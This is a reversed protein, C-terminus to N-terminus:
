LVHAGEGGHATEGSTDANLSFTTRCINKYDCSLCNTFRIEKSSFDLGGLAQDFRGLYTELADLTPQYAERSLGRKGRPSGVVATIDHNNISMFFAGGVTVGTKEEYLKIYMPIQFDTLPSDATEISARQTPTLGTKYDIICPEDDPSVSVRDLKGNLLVGEQILELALELGGVSFGAFYKVETKLLLLLRKAIAASQSVLLPVALPGQFASYQHAAEDTHQRIWSGYDQLRKPNFYGGEVRIHTFLKRLIEHYLNGLSTDDLLKAELSFVALGCIKRYFWLAPCKFFNNMDTASVKLLLSSHNDPLARRQKLTIRENVIQAYYGDPPFPTKLLNFPAASSGGLITRWRDFGAHQISFLRPPFQVAAGTKGAMGKSVSGGAAWWDRELVFPDPPLAPADLKNGSFFSHPIAWGSFTEASASIRTYPTVTGPVELQYLRFFVASADIDTIGLRKRKDQRLFKLPQYLVTAADQSANLVFHCAFPAAAAEQYPFLHVGPGEPAPVYRKEQLVSRYFSFPLAPICDPYDEELQVLTSLEEMCRALVEDGEVSCNDRSFFGPARDYSVATDPKRDEVAEKAPTDGSREWTRGRFALYRTRIETFNRSTTIAILASKLAEYYQRLREERPSTRFAETWVDVMRDKEHYASVCNNKIGFEILGRNLVPYAWPLRENLVLSKLATFSFNHDVCNQILPFLRGTGHDALPQGLRCHVPINYLSLERVMYPELAELDPVSIAMDEYPIGAAAHLRRIELVTARIEGRSSDYCSLPAPPKTAAINVLHIAPAARLIAEYETFDKIAEPFFLYYHYATDGLLPREWSPEFLGHRKLFEAYERELIAFDRDEEDPLYATAEQRTKLLSLSPLIAAIQGAFITGEEAFQVPILARFPLAAVSSDPLVEQNPSGTQSSVGQGAKASQAARANKRVLTEVFLKRVGPSVPETDQVRARIVQEKFRDWSLFRNLAVSRVGTLGCTKWAWRSAATESPFVFRSSRTHIAESIINLVTHM